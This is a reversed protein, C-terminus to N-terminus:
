LEKPSDKHVLLDVRPDAADVRSPVTISFSSNHAYCSFSQSALINSLVSELNRYIQIVDKCWNCARAHARVCVCVCVCM